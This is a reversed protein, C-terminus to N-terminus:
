TLEHDVIRSPCNTAPSNTIRDIRRMSLEGLSDDLLGVAQVAQGDFITANTPSSLSVVFTENPEAFRDGNGLELFLHKDPPPM